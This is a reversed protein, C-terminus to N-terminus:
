LGLWFGCYRSGGRGSCVYGVVIEVVVGGFDVLVVVEVVGAVIKLFSTWYSGRLLNEVVVELVVGALIGLM